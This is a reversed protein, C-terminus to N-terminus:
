HSRQLCRHKPGNHGFIMTLLFIGRRSKVTSVGFEDHQDNFLTRGFFIVLMWFLIITLFVLVLYESSLGLVDPAELTPRNPTIKASELIIVVM